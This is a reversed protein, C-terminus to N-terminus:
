NVLKHGIPATEDTNLHEAVTERGTQSDSLQAKHDLTPTQTTKPNIKITASRVCDALAHVSVAMTSM